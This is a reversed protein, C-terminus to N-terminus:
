DPQALPDSPEFVPPRYAQVIGTGPQFGLRRYLRGAPNTAGTVIVWQRCGREGAWRAALGLLHAALGRRRHDVDTDVSQYRAISGCRVIGLEAVLADGAFAGFFAADGRDCLARRTQIQARVFREHARPEYEATRKNEQIARLVSHEWDTGDLRRATYEPALPTQLPLRDVSLVDDLEPFMGQEAWANRDAPMRTLGIAVWTAEPFALHFADVWRPADDVLSEDTVFICNGWHFEPNHPSRVVLHDDHDEITSGTHRLIALDTQWGLSVEHM